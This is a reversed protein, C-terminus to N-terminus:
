VAARRASVLLAYPQGVIFMLLACVDIDNKLLTIYVLGRVWFEPVVMQFLVPIVSPIPGLLQDRQAHACLGVQLHLM